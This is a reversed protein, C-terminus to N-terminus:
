RRCEFFAVRLNGKRSIRLSVVNARIVPPNAMTASESPAENTAPVSTLTENPLTENLLSHSLATMPPIISLAPPDFRRKM